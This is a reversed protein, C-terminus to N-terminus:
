RRLAAVAAQTMEVVPVEFIEVDVNDAGAARRAEDRLGSVKSESSELDARSEWTTSVSSRGTQRDVVVATTRYGKLAKLVPLAKNRMFVTLADVKDPDGSMTNVRAFVGGTKPAQPMDMIVVEGREVNVIRTGAVNTTAQTRTQMGIQESAGLAKASEWYTIGTGLGSKRDILLVAGQYGPAKSANPIVQQKFNAITDDVKEPPAQIRTARIFM